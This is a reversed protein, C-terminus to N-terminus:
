SAIVDPDRGLLINLERQVKKYVKDKEEMLSRKIGLSEQVLVSFPRESTVEGKEVITDIRKLADGYDLDYMTYEEILVAYEALRSFEEKSILMNLVSQTHEGETGYILPKLVNLITRRPAPCVEEGVLPPRGTLELNTNSVDYVFEPTVVADEGYQTMINQTTLNIGASTKFINGVVDPLADRQLPSQARHVLYQPLRNAIVTMDALERATVQQPPNGDYYHFRIWSFGDYIEQEHGTIAEFAPMNTLLKPYNARSDKLAHGRLQFVVGKAKQAELIPEGVRMELLPRGNVTIFDTMRLNSALSIGPPKQSLEREHNAM